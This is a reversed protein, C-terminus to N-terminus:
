KNELLEEVLSFIELVLEKWKESLEKNERLQNLVSELHFDMDKESM